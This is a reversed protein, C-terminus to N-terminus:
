PKEERSSATAPEPWVFCPEGDVPVTWVVLPGNFEGRSRAMGVAEHAKDPTSYAGLVAGGDETIRETSVVYIGGM